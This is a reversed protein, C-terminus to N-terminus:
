GGHGARRPVRGGWARRRLRRGPQVRHRGRRRRRAGGRAVARAPVGRGPEGRGDDDEARPAGLDGARPHGRGAREAPRVRPLRAVGNRPCLDWGSPHGHRRHHVLGNLDDLQSAQGGLDTRPATPRGARLALRVPDLYATGTIGAAVPLVAVAILGATRAVDNNVASAIGAHEAPAAALVTSTLPAVNIALGLGYVVVGPLVTTLYTGTPGIQTLMVMGAAIVMPGLSMQLRPGIRTALAGSRESLALMIFTVPLLAAGSAIPSYGAVVQLEVPLLFLGGALAALVAPATWGASGARILGFTLGTLGLTVLAAGPYDLRGSVTEDRSEPVHRVAIAVVAVALPLNIFFVLRWSVAEILWGGLFPGIASAVGGFGSWAGIARSRDESAFTAELIALSGPTLLAGGVGQLIRAAVLVGSSPATGCLLSAAAFWVVGVVFVRRRGFYDGLAGGLLLLGALSLTYSTVVWQLSSVDAHFQRGITPLAIGVVTGDLAAIGSGLVTAVITWRGSATGFRLMERGDRASAAAPVARNRGAGTPQAEEDDHGANTM